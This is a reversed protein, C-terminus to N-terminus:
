GLPSPSTYQLSLSILGAKITAAGEIDNTNFEMATVSMYDVAGGLTEDGLIAASIAQLIVDFALDRKEPDVGKVIVQIEVEHDFEYLTPSLLVDPEGPDGDDLNIWGANPIKKPEPSNRTVDPGPITKLLVLLAKLATERTSDAM